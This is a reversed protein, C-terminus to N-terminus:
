SAAAEAPDVAGAVEARRAREILSVATRVTSDDWGVLWRLIREDYAGLEVGRLAKRLAAERIQPLTYHSPPECDLRQIPAYDAVSM